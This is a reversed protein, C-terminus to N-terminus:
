NLPGERTPPAINKQLHEETPVIIASEIQKQTLGEKFDFKLKKYQSDPIIYAYYKRGLICYKFVRRVFAKADEETDFRETYVRVDATIDKWRCFRNFAAQDKKNIFWASEPELIVWWPEEKGLLKKIAKIINM